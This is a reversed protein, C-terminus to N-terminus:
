LTCLNKSHILYIMTPNVGEVAREDRRGGVIPATEVPQIKM